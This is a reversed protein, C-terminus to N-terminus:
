DYSKKILTIISNLEQLINDITNNLKLNEQEYKNIQKKLDYILERNKINEKNSTESKKKIESFENNVINKTSLEAELKITLISLIKFDSVKGLLYDYEKLKKNISNTAELLKDKEKLDYNIKIERNLINLKITPM